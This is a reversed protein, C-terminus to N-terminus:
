DHEDSEGFEALWEAETIGTLIFERQQKTLAPFTDQILKGSARWARIDDETVGPLDLSHLKGSLISKRTIITM